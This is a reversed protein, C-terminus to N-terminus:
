CCIKLLQLGRLICNDGHICLSSPLALHGTLNLGWLPHLQVHVNHFIVIPGKVNVVCGGFRPFINNCDAKPSLVDRLAGEM